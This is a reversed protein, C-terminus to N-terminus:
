KDPTSNALDTAILGPSIATVRIDPNESRLGESIARVAHKTACYVTFNPIVKQGAVSALNIIHGEKRKKMDPLVAQEGAFCGFFRFGGAFVLDIKNNLWDKHKKNNSDFCDGVEIEAFLDSVGNIDEKFIEKIKM